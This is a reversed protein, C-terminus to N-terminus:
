LTCGQTSYLGALGGVRPVRALQQLQLPWCPFCCVGLLMLRWRRTM